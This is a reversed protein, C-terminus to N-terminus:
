NDGDSIGVRMVARYKQNPHTTINKYKQELQGNQLMPNIYHTRLTDKNRNLLFSLEELTLYQGDCLELITSIVRERPTRRAMRVPEAIVFLEALHESSDTL